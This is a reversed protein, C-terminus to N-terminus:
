AAEAKPQAMYQGAPCFQDPSIDFGRACALDTIVVAYQSDGVYESNPLRNKEAWAAVAQRSIKKIRRSIADAVASVGGAKEIAERIDMACTFRITANIDLM